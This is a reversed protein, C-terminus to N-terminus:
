PIGGGRTPTGPRDACTKEVFGSVYRAVADVQRVHCFHDFGSELVVEADPMEHRLAAARGGALTPDREGGVVLTPVTVTVLPLEASAVFQDFLTTFGVPGIREIMKTLMREALDPEIPTRRGALRVHLGERIIQEFSARAREFVPWTIDLAPPCYFPAVLMAGRVAQDPTTALAELVANAGLSHGVLVDVPRGFRRLGSALWAGPTGARRWRYGSGARWPLDLAYVQWSRDLM